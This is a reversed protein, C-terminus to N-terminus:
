YPLLTRVRTTSDPLPFLVRGPTGNSDEFKASCKLASVVKQKGPIVGGRSKPPVKFTCSDLGFRALTLVSDVVSSAWCNTCSDPSRGRAPCQNPLGGCSEDHLHTLAGVKGENASDLWCQVKGWNVRNRHSHSTAIGGREYSSFM